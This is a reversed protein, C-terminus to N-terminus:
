PVSSAAGTGRCSCTHLRSWVSSFTGGLSMRWTHSLSLNLASSRSPSDSGTDGPPPCQQPCSVRSLPCPNVVPTLPAGVLPLFCGGTILFLRPHHPVGMLSLSCGFTTPLLCQHYSVREPSLFCGTTVSLVWHHCPAGLPSLSSGSIILLEWQHCPAWAPSLSCGSTVSSKGPHGRLSGPAPASAAAGGPGCGGGTSPREAPGARTRGASTGRGPAPASGRSGTGCASPAPSTARCGAPPCRGAARQLNPVRPDRPQPVALGPGAGM